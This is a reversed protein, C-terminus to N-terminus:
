SSKFSIEVLLAENLCSIIVQRRRKHLGLIELDIINWSRKTIINSEEARIYLVRVTDVPTVVSVPADPIGNTHRM